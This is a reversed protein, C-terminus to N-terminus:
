RLVVSFDPFVIVILNLSSNAICNSVKLFSMTAAIFAFSLTVFSATEERIAAAFFTAISSPHPHYEPLSTSRTIRLSSFVTFSCSSVQGSFLSSRLDSYWALYSTMAFYAGWCILSSSIRPYRSSLNCFNKCCFFLPWIMFSHHTIQFSLSVSLQDIFHHCVIQRYIPFQCVCFLLEQSRCSSRLVNM